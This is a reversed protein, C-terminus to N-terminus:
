HYHKRTHNKNKNYMNNLKFKNIKESIKSKLIKKIRRKNKQQQAETEKEKFKLINKICKKKICKKIKKNIKSKLSKKNKINRIKKKITSHKKKLIYNNMKNRNGKGGVTTCSVFKIEKDLISNLKSIIKKDTNKIENFRPLTFRNGRLNLNYISKIQFDNWSPNKEKKKYIFIIRNFIENLYLNMLLIRQASVTSDDPPLPLIGVDLTPLSSLKFSISSKATPLTTFEVLQQKKEPLPLMVTGLSLPMKDPSSATPMPSFDPVSSSSPASPLTTFNLGSSTSPQTPLSFDEPLGPQQQRPTLLEMSPLLTPQASSPEMPEMLPSLTPPLRKASPSSEAMPDFGSFSFPAREATQPGMIPSLSPLESSASRRPQEPEIPSSAPPLRTASPSSEAMPDFGSFSFPAREATQPGMIPSLSSLESSASRRPQEPEIPSTGNMGGLQTFDTLDSIYDKFNLSGFKTITNKKSNLYPIIFRKTHNLINSDNIYYKEYIPRIPPQTELELKNNYRIVSIAIYLITKTDDLLNGNLNYLADEDVYDFLQKTINNTNYMGVIIDGVKFGIIAALSECKIGDIIYYKKTTDLKFKTLENVSLQRITFGLIESCKQKEKRKIKDNLIRGFFISNSSLSNKIKLEEIELKKSDVFNKARSFMDNNKINVPKSTLPDVVNVENSYLIDQITEFNFNEPTIPPPATTAM